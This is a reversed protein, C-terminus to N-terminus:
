KEPYVTQVLHDEYAGTTLCSVICYGLLYLMVAIGGVNGTIAYVSSRSRKLLILDLDRELVVQMVMDTEPSYNM